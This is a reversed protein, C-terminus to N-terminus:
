HSVISFMKTKMNEKTFHRSIESDTKVPNNTKKSDLKSFEEYIRKIFSTDIQTHTHTHM